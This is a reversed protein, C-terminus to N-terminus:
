GGIQFMRRNRTFIGEQLRHGMPKQHVAKLLIARVADPGNERLQKRIDMEDDNLLCLHFKGDATLRMRNCSGCYAASVPSIFGVIGRAGPLRYNVAEDSPLGPLPTLTGLASEIRERVEQNSIYQERAVTACDGSGFPMMEIFRFHWDREITLAALEAVDTDNYGRAIVANLKIPRLGAREAAEIGNQIASLKGWRMIRELREPHLTDIHINVRKLGAKALPEALEPLLIGNTTMALDGVGEIRGLREVIEVVDPRLTPEGGTLRVKEIGLSVFIESIYEIEEFTLITEKRALPPEGNPLCYFCRFNCRDTLSIRLDRITRNYSDRLSVIQYYRLSM